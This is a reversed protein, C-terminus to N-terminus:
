PRRGCACKGAPTDTHATKCAGAFFCPRVLPNDRRWQIDRPWRDHGWNSATSDPDEWANVAEAGTCDEHRASDTGTLKDATRSDLGPNLPAGLSRSIGASPAHQRDAPSSSCAARSSEAASLGQGSLMVAGTDPCFAASGHERFAEYMSM